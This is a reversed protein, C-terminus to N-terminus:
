RWRYFSDTIRDRLSQFFEKDQDSKAGVMLGIFGCLVVFATQWFGFLLVAIGLFLGLFAGVMRGRHELWANRIFCKIDEKM